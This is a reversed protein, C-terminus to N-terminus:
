PYHREMYFLAFFLAFCAVTTVSCYCFCVFLCDQNKLMVLIYAGQFQWALEKNQNQNINQSTIRWESFQKTFCFSALLSQYCRSTRLVLSWILTDQGAVYRVVNSMQLCFHCTRLFWWDPFSQPATLYLELHNRGSEESILTFHCSCPLRTGSVLMKRMASYPQHCQFGM